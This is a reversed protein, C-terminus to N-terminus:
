NKMYITKMKEDTFVLDYEKAKLLNHNKCHERFEPEKYMKVIAAVMKRVNRPKKICVGSKGDETYDKIGNVYASILPLGSAMAELPAIGLGERVSPHVFCDSIKCLEDIDTRFGLLKIHEKLDNEKRYKEFEDYLEGNGVLIYYIDEYVDPNSHKICNIAKLVVEQNKRDSLEGVSLLVFGNDSIGLEKRKKGRDIQCDAYAVTDVGVGPIKYVYKAYFNDNARKYDENNITILVDTYVSLFKEIPYFIVWNKLPAGEYFHFGHATYIVRPIHEIHAAIRGLVGGVPTHCHVLDFQVDHMIKKLENFANINQKAIPTRAFPVHYFVVGSTKMMKVKESFKEDEMNSVCSVKYGMSQLIKIDNMEFSAIFGIVTAVILANKESM